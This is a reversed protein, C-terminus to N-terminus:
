GQFNRRESGVVLCVVGVTGQGVQRVPEPASTEGCVAKTVELATALTIRHGPSVVLSKGIRIAHLTNRLLGFSMWLGFFGFCLVVNLVRCQVFLGVFSGSFVFFIVNKRRLLFALCIHTNLGGM